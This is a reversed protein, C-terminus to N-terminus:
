QVPLYLLDPIEPTYRHKKGLQFVYLKVTIWAILHIKVLEGPESCELKVPKNRRLSPVQDLDMENHLGYSKHSLIASNM